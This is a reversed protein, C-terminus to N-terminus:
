DGRTDKKEIEQLTLDIEADPDPESTEMMFGDNIAEVVANFLTMFYAPKLRARIAKGDVAKYKEDLQTGARDAEEQAKREAGATLIGAIKCVDRVRGRNGQGITDMLQGLMCVNEEIDAFADMDLFFYLELGPATFATKM